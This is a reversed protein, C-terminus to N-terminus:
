DEDPGFFGGDRLIKEFKAFCRARTPGMSNLAIGLRRAIDEYRPETPDLYLARLLTECRGGLSKLAEQVRFSQEWESPPEHDDHQKREEFYRQFDMYKNSNRGVRWCERHTTTILWAGLRTPDQLSKLSEYLRLFVTQFVDDRDAADLRYRAAVSAVLRGHRRVLENWAASDGALCATILKTTPDPDSMRSDRGGINVPHLQSTM